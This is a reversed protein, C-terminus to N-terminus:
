SRDAPRVRYVTTPGSQFAIDLDVGVMAAFASLGAETAYPRAGGDTWKREVDGVIIYVVNYRRLIDLKESRDTSRYLRQVDSVRTSLDDNDRQQEEHPAAWGIITPLGTANAIRTGNGRYPGISAEAVVPSGTIEHNFWDIAARDGIFSVSDGQADAVVGYDMWDFSDLTGSGLHTTFRQHLRPSVAFVPYILSLAIVIATMTVTLRSWEMRDRIRQDPAAGAAPATPRRRPVAVRHAISMDASAAWKLPSAAGWVGRMSHALLAAASIALLVWVQDYFKFVTNMRYADPNGALNDVVYIIETGAAVVAAAVVLLAPFQRASGSNRLWAVSASAAITLLVALVTWGASRCAISVGLSVLLIGRLLMTRGPASGSAAHQWAAGGLGVALLIVTLDGTLDAVIPQRMMFFRQVLWGSALAPVFFAPRVLSFPWRANRQELTSILAMLSVTILGGFQTAFQATQTPSRVRGVSTFLAVYHHVFPLFLLYAVTPLALMSGLGVAVRWRRSPLRLAAMLISAIALAAYVPVDWANTAYLTGLVVALLGLRLLYHPWDWSRWPLEASRTWSDRAIAYGLAIALVTIPLAVVHAHLDAYLGTFFPFETIGGDVARSGSWTWYVFDDFPARNANIVQVLGSLNGMGVLFIASLVGSAISLNTRRTIDRGIASAVTFGASALLAIVTPQALNFGIEVPIGTAKFCFAVLYLGYYYYNIYGDAYWPDYPPFHASRLTANLHAFEMPKEGGWFPHWSDPNLYRFLLFLGFTLWFVAEGSWTVRGIPRVVQGFNRRPFHRIFVGVLLVIALAVWCWVARFSIVKVSAAVWVVYGGLLLAVLRSLGWGQDAFGGFVLRTVPRGLYQLLILFGIWVVLAGVSHGTLRESWRADSVVPLNGVPEDLLLSPRALHRTPSWPRHLAWSMMQGYTARDVLKVKKYLLVQPHDYNILSEDAGEDNLSVPGVSPPHSFQAVRTFGLQGNLLLEYYRTQVPYRWPSRPISALLRNSSIVVYDVQDLVRYIDDAVDDPPRDDYLNMTVTQYQRDRSSLGSGIELPLSDDWYESSFSSGPPTSALIWRSAEVRTNEHRYVTSFAATSGGMGLLLIGLVASALLPRTFRGVWRWLADLAVGASLALVPLMPSLYRLFKVEPVAVVVGYGLLWAVILVDGATRCQLARRALFFVGCLSLLGAIPGFGWWVLQTVQYLVPPTGVYLRTFPVDFIGRVIDSQTRLSTLYIAPNVLAYPEFLAFAGVASLGALATRRLSGAVAPAWPDGNTRRRWADYAATALMLGALSFVSGKTAMAFGFAAGMLAFWRGRGSEGARIACYLCIAVFFSLWSDTTFFHALQISMPASAMVSAAFLAVPRSFVRAGILFVLLVTLTDLLASIARGVRYIQDYSHWDTDSLWTGIEAVTDTVILPLAGYPFERYSGNTPDASRPNLGSQGADLLTTLRPPWELHIRTATVDAVYREDPHLYRGGDWDLGYLRLALSAILLTALAVATPRILPLQVRPRAIM